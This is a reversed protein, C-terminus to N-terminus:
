SFSGKVKDSHWRAAEEETCDGRRAACITLAASLGSTLALHVGSSFLPDIFAGADGVVRLGPLAYFNSMYSYDSAFHIEPKDDSGVVQRGDAILAFLNPALRLQDLYFENGTLPPSQTRKKQNAIDQNIM